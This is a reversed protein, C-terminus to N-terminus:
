KLRTEGWSRLAREEAVEFGTSLSTEASLGGDEGKVDRGVERDDLCNVEGSGNLLECVCSVNVSDALFMSFAGM